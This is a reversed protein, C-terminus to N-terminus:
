EKMNLETWSQTNNLQASILVTLQSTGKLLSRWGLCNYGRVGCLLTKKMM